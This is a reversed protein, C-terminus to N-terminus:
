DELWETEMRGRTHIDIHRARESGANVFKHPTGPPVVIIQGASAPITEEGVTFVLNGELIVFVEAYPHRHLRPGTGPSGDVLHFSVNVDGYQGGQFTRAMGRQPLTEKTIVTAM